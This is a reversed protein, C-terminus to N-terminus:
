FIIIIFVFSKKQKGILRKIKENSKSNNVTKKPQENEKKELKEIKGKRQKRQALEKLINAAM